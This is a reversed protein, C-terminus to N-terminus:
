LNALSEEVFELRESLQKITRELRNKERELREKPNTQHATGAKQRMMERVGAPSNGKIFEQEAEARDDNKRVSAVVKMNDFGIAPNVAVAGVRQIDKASSRPLCLIRDIYDEYRIDAEECLKHAKILLRGFEQM